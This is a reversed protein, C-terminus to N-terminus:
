FFWQHDFGNLGACKGCVSSYKGENYKECVRCLDTVPKQEKLSTSISVLAKTIQPIYHEFFHKGMVTEHFNMM